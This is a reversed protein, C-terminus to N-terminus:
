ALVDPPARGQFSTRLATDTTPLDPLRPVEWATRIDHEHLCVEVLGTTSLLRSCIDCSQPHISDLGNAHTASRVVAVSSITEDVHNHFVSLLPITLCYSLLLIGSMVRYPLKLLMRLVFTSMKGLIQLCLCNM